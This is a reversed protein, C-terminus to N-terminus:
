SHHYTIVPGDDAMHARTNPESAQTFGRQSTVTQRPESAHFGDARYDFPSYIACHFAERATCAFPRM